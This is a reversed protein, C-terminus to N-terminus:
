LVAAFTPQLPHVTSLRGLHDARHRLGRWRMWPSSVAATTSTEDGSGGLYTAYVLAAGDSTLKAVLRRWLTSHPNRPHVTSLRGLHDERHRLLATADVTIGQGQDFGSGGLYHRLRPGRWRGHAEGCLRGRLWRARAAPIRLPSTPHPPSGQSTPPAPPMWAIRLGDGRAPRWTLPM